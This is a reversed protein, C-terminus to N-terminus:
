QLVNGDADLSRHQLTAGDPGTQLWYLESGVLQVARVREAAVETPVVEGGAGYAVRWLAAATAFFAVPHAQTDDLVALTMEPPVDDTKGSAYFPVFTDGLDTASTKVRFIKAEGIHSALVYQHGTATATLAIPVDDDLGDQTTQFCSPEGAPVQTSLNCDLLAMGNNTGIVAQRVVKPNDGYGILNSGGTYADGGTLVVSSGNSGARTFYVSSPRLFVATPLAGGGYDYSAFFAGAAYDGDLPFAATTQGSTISVLGSGPATPNAGIGMVAIADPLLPSGLLRYTTNASLGLDSQTPLPGTLCAGSVSAVPFSYLASGTTILHAHHDDVWFGTANAVTACAASADPGGEPTEVVPDRDGNWGSGDVCGSDVALGTADVCVPEDVDKRHCLPSAMVSVISGKKAKRCVGPPLKVRRNERDLTVGSNGDFVVVNGDNTRVGGDTPGTIKVAAAVDLGDRIGRPVDAIAALSLYCEPTGVGEIQDGAIQVTRFNPDADGAPFCGALNFCSPEFDAACFHHDPPADRNPAGSAGASPQTLGSRPDSPVWASLSGPDIDISACAGTDDLTQGDGCFDSKFRAFADVSGQDAASTDLLGVAGSAPTIPTPGGGAPNGDAVDEANLWLLPMPLNKLEVDPVRVRAERMAVPVRDPGYAVIRVQITSDPNGDSAVSLNGPLVVHLKHDSDEYQATVESSVLPVTKGGDVRVIYVGVVDVGTPVTLDTNMSLMIGGTSPEKACALGLVPLLFLCCLSRM